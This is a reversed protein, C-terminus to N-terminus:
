GSISTIWLRHASIREYVDPHGTACAIQWSSVGALIGGIILGSGEDGAYDLFLVDTLTIQKNKIECFERGYCTGEASRTFTCMKTETIRGANQSSHRSQCEPNTLTITNLRQLNNPSAGGSQLSAGWGSVQATVAGGVVNPSLGITQINATFLIATATYILSISYSGLSLFVM